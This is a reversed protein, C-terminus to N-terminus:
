FKAVLTLTSMCVLDFLTQLRPLGKAASKKDQKDTGLDKETVNKELEKGLREVTSKLQQLEHVGQKAKQEQNPSSTIAANLIGQSELKFKEASNFAELEIAHQVADNLSTPRAQKIRLRM